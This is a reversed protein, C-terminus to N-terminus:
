NKEEPAPESPSPSPSAKKVEEIKDVTEQPIPYNQSINMRKNLDNTYAQYSTLIGRVITDYRTLLREAIIIVEKLENDIKDIESQSLSALNHVYKIRFDNFIKLDDLYDSKDPFFHNKLHRILEGVPLKRANIRSDFFLTGNLERHTVIYEIKMINELLHAATYDVANFYILIATLVGELKSVDQNRAIDIVGKTYAFNQHEFPVFSVIDIKM